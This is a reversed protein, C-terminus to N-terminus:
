SVVADDAAATLSAFERSACRIGSDSITGLPRLLPIASWSLLGVARQHRDGEPSRHRRERGLLVPLAHGPLHDRSADRQPQGDARCRECYQRRGSPPRRVREYFRGCGSCTLVGNQQTLAFAVQLGIAGFLTHGPITFVPRIAEVRGRKNQVRRHLSRGHAINGIFVCALLVAYAFAIERILVRRRRTSAPRSSSTV